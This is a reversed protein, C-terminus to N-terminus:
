LVTVSGVVTAFGMERALDTVKVQIQQSGLLAARTYEQSIAGQSVVRVSLYVEEGNPSRVEWSNKEEGLTLEVQGQWARPLELYFGYEADVVGWSKPWEATTYDQWAVFSLRRELSANVVGGAEGALQVPIEVTTDGDIDMSHLSTFYRLTANYLDEVYRSDYAKLKKAKQDYYLIESALYAGNNGTYGDVILYRRGGGGISSCIGACGSFRGQAVDLSQVQQYTNDTNTLLKVQVGRDGDQVVVLDLTGSGTIDALLYESYSTELVATLTVDSYTYVTLYRDGQATGYGVLLQTGVQDDGALAATSVSEVETSLGEREQTVWWSGEQQELIALQVNTGKSACTYFVAADEQGDGDWDDFVFPSLHDGGTPYKLQPSEGLYATLAKQVQNTQGSFQPARLLDEVGSAGFSYSCGSLLLACLLASACCRRKKM